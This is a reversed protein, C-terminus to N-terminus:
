AVETLLELNNPERRLAEALLPQADEPYGNHLAERARKRLVAVSGPAEASIPPASRLLPAMAPTAAAAAPRLSASAAAAGTDQGSLDDPPRRIPEFGVFPLGFLHLWAREFMCQYVPSARSLVDLKGLHPRATQLFRELVTHHVAFVSGHAYVGTDARRAQEALEEFGCLGLFHAMLNTGEVLKQKERYVRAIQPAREDHFGLPALTTLSYREARVAASGIWDRCDQEILHRPPLQRKEDAIVSLPQVNGWRQPQLLLEFWAPAHAFPDGSTFVTFEGRAPDADHILHHLFASTADGADRLQVQHAPRAFTDPALPAGRNYLYVSCHAPLDDIWSVDETRRAIVINLM